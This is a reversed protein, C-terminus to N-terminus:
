QYRDYIALVKDAYYYGVDRPGYAALGDRISGTREILASIMRTGYDINFEPDELEAITPRSSFCPGNACWFNAAIGDSPMVQLLGVAGSASYATPNGGSEQLMMSAVLDPEVQHKDAYNTILECWQLIAEPFKDSIQCSDSQKPKSPTTKNQADSQEETPQAPVESQSQQVVTSGSQAPVTNTLSSPSAGASVIFGFLALISSGFLAGVILLHHPFKMEEEM